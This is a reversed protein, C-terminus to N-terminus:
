RNIEIEGVIQTHSRARRHGVGLSGFPFFRRQTWENASLTGAIVQLGGIVAAMLVLCRRQLSGLSNRLACLVPRMLQLVVGSGCNVGAGGQGRGDGRWLPRWRGVMGVM